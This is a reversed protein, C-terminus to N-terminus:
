GVSPLFVDCCVLPSHRPSSRGVLETRHNLIRTRDNTNSVHSRVETTLKRNRRALHASRAQYSMRSFLWRLPNELMKNEAHDASTHGKVEHEEDSGTEAKGEDVAANASSQFIRSEPWLQFCKGVYFLNKVVQL